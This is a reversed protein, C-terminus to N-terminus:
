QKTAPHSDATPTFAGTIDTTLVGGVAVTENVTTTSEADRIDITKAFSVPTADAM